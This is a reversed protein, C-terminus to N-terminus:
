VHVRGKCKSNVIKAVLIRRFSNEQPSNKKFPAFFTAGFPNLFFFSVSKRQHWPPVESSVSRTDKM